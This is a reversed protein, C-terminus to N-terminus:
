LMYCYENVGKPNLVKIRKAAKTRGFPRPVKEGLDVEVDENTEYTEHRGPKVMETDILTAHAIKKM